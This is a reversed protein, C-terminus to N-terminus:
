TVSPQQNAFSSTKHQFFSRIHSAKSKGVVEAIAEESANSIGRISGFKQLLHKAKVPGVNPILQVLTLVVADIPQKRRKVLFPNAHPKHEENVMQILLNAAETQSSVFLLRLGLELIVFKQLECYYQNSVPTLEAIVIGRLSNAKRLKAIKQKFNSGAVLDTESVYIVGAENSPHFDIVGLNDEIVVKLRGKLTKVLESGKWRQSTVICGPPVRGGENVPTCPIQSLDGSRMSSSTM